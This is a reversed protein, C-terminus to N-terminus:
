RQRPVKQLEEHLMELYLDMGVTDLDGSQKLGFITGVGRIAM